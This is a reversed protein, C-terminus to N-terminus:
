TLHANLGLLKVGDPSNNRITTIQKHKTHIHTRTYTHLHTPTHTHAFPLQVTLLYNRTNM